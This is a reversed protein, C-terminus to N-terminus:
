RSAHRVSRWRPRTLSDSSLAEDRAADERTFLFTPRGHRDQDLYVGAYGPQEEAFAVAPGISMQVDLRQRMDKLESPSLPVGYPVRSYDPNAAADRVYAADSRLGFSERFTVDGAM